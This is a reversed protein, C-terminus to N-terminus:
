AAATVGEHLTGRKSRDARWVSKYNRATGSKLGARVELEKNSMDPESDLLAFALQRRTLGVLRPKAAQEAGAQTDTASAGDRAVVVSQDDESFQLRLNMVALRGRLNSKDHTLKVPGNKAKTARFVERAANRKYTSGYLAGKKATHDILLATAGLGAIIRFLQLTAVRPDADPAEAGLAFGVSDVIVLTPRMQRAVARVAEAGSNLPDPARLYHIQSPLPVSAGRALKSVRSRWDGGFTEWDLVLVPGTRTPTWGAIVEEGSAVSLAIAQALLSKGSEGDGFLLTTQGIPLIDGLLLELPAPEIQDLRVPQWEAPIAIQGSM